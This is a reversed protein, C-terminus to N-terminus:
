NLTKLRCSNNKQFTEFRAKSEKVYNNFRKLLGEEYRGGSSTVISILEVYARFWYSWSLGELFVSSLDVDTLKTDQLDLMDRIRWDPTLPITNQLRFDWDPSINISYDQFKPDLCNELIRRTTEVMITSQVKGSYVRLKAEESGTGFSDRLSARIPTYVSWMKPIARADSITVIENIDDNVLDKTSNQFSSFLLHEYVNLTIAYELLQSRQQFQEANAIRFKQRPRQLVYFDSKYMKQFYDSIKNMSHFTDTPHLSIKTRNERLFQPDKLSIHGWDELLPVANAPVTDFGTFDCRFKSYTFHSLGLQIALITVGGNQVSLKRLTDLKKCQNFITTRVDSKSYSACDFPHPSSATGPLYAGLFLSLKKLTKTNTKRCYSDLANLASRTHFMDKVM